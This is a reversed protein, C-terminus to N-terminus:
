LTEDVIDLEKLCLAIASPEYGKGSAFRFMKSKLEYANKSKIAPRKEKLLKFIMDHYEQEPIQDLGEDIIEAQIGKQKLLYRIKIRGWRNIRFKDNVFAKVFRKENIFDEQKLRQILNKQDEPPLEFKSIKCLVESECHESTSCYSAAFVLAESFNSM